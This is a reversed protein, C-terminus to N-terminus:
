NLRRRAVLIVAAGLAALPVIALAANSEGTKPISGDSKSAPRVGPQNHDATDGDEPQPDTGEPEVDKTWSAVLTLSGTVPTSFDYKEGDLLWGAFAFGERTPAAPETALKGVQVTQAAVDTGGNSDFSVQYTPVEVGQILEMEYSGEWTDLVERIRKPTSALNDLAAFSKDKADMYLNTKNGDADTGVAANWISAAAGSCNHVLISYHNENGSNAQAMMRDLQSQTIDVSYAKNPSLTQYTKQRYLERNVFLGGTADGDLLKSINGKTSLLNMFANCGDTTLASAAYTKLQAVLDDYSTINGNVYQLLLGSIGQLVDELEVDDKVGDSVIAKLESYASSGGIASRVLEEKGSFTYNGITIYEGSDLTCDYSTKNYQAYPAGGDKAGTFCADGYECIADYLTKYQFGDSERDDESTKTYEDLTLSSLGLKDACESFQSRWSLQSNDTETAAQFEPTMEYYGYLDTFNLELNDKYSTFVLFAHGDVVSSTEPDFMSVISLNGVVEDASTSDALAPTVSGLAVCAGLAVAAAARLGHGLKKILQM